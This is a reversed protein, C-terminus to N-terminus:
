TETKQQELAARTRTIKTDSHCCEEAPPAIENKEMLSKLWDRKEDYSNPGARFLERAKSWLGKLASAESWAWHMRSKGVMKSLLFAHHSDLLQLAKAITKHTHISSPFTNIAACLLPFNGACTLDVARATLHEQLFVLPVDKDMKMRELHAKVHPCAKFSAFLRMAKDDIVTTQPSAGGGGGAAHTPAMLTEIALTRAASVVLMDVDIASIVLMDFM